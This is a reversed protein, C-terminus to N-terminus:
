LQRQLNQAIAWGRTAIARARSGASLANENSANGDRARQAVGHLIAAVKFMSFAICAQWAEPDVPPRETLRCYRALYDALPPIGTGELDMGGFGRLEEPPLYWSLCHYAFDALPHGLTSLEWDLLALARSEGPHFIINDLRYDGHVLALEDQKPVHHPLWDILADMAAIREGGSAQYHRSWRSIQRQFYNGRSGYDSLGLQQPDLRHLAAIIRVAEAYIDSRAAPSQGPLAPEWFVRGEVYDILCFPSGIIGPDDCYLIPTAVPVASGVLAGTVRFERDIAHASALLQGPPKRRLVYNRETTGLLYTPNSQGGKFKEVSVINGHGALRGALYEDLKPLDFKLHEPVDTTGSYSTQAADPLFIDETSSWAREPSM